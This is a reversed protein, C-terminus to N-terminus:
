GTGEARHPGAPSPRIFKPTEGLDRGRRPGRAPIGGGGWGGKAMLLLFV